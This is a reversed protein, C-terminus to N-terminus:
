RETPEIATLQRALTTVKDDPTFQTFQGDVLLLCGQYRYLEELFRIHLPFYPPSHAIRVCARHHDPEYRLMRIRTHGILLSDLDPYASNGSGRSDWEQDLAWEHLISRQDGGFGSGPSSKMLIPQYILAGAPDQSRLMQHILITQATSMGADWGERTRFEIAFQDGINVMLVPVPTAPSQLRGTTEYWSLSTLCIDTTFSAGGSFRRVSEPPLWHKNQRQIACLGPGSRGYRPSNYQFTVLDSSMMDYFDNFAGHSSPAAPHEHESNDRSLPLNLYHGIQRALYTLGTSDPIGAADLPLLYPHRPEISPTGPTPPWPLLLKVYDSYVATLVDFPGAGHIVLFVLDFPFHHFPANQTFAQFDRHQLAINQWYISKDTSARFERQFTLSDQWLPQWDFVRSGTSPEGTLDLAGLSNDLWYQRLSQSDGLLLDDFFARPQTPTADNLHVLVIACQLTLM